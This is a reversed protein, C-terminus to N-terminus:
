PASLLENATRTFGELVCQASNSRGLLYTSVTTTLHQQFDDWRVIEPLPAAHVMQGVVERWQNSSGPGALWEPQVCISRRIPVDGSAVAWRTAVSPSTLWRLFKWGAEEVTPSGGAVMVLSTGPALTARSTGAPLPAMALFRDEAATIWANAPTIAMAALGDVVASGPSGMTLLVSKRMCALEYLYDLAEVGERSAVMPRPPDGGVLSGGNQHVFLAYLSADARLALGFSWKRPDPPRTTLSVSLERLEDWTAPPVPVVEPDYLLAYVRHSFPLGWVQQDVTNTDVLCAWFDDLDELTLGQDKRAIFGQLPKLLGAAGLSSLATAPVEALAPLRGPAAERLARALAAADGKYVPEVTINPNAASFEATLETLFEAAEGRQSHWFIITVPSSIEVATGTWCGASSFAVAAVVGIIVLLRVGGAPRDPRLGRM